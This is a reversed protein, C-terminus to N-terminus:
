RKSLSARVRYVLNRSKKQGFEPNQKCNRCRSIKKEYGSHEKTLCFSKCDNCDIKLNQYGSHNKIWCFSTGKCDRCWIKKYEYGSHSKDWCYWIFEKNCPISM